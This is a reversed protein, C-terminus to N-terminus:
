REKPQNTGIWYLGVNLKLPALPDSYTKDKCLEILGSKLHPDDIDQDKLLDKGKERVWKDVPFMLQYEFTDFNAKYESNILVIDRIIFTALKDGIQKISDLKYYAKYLGNKEKTIITKFYEYLNNTNTDRMFQLISNVMDIDKPNTLVSKLKDKITGEDDELLKPVAQEDTELGLLKITSKRYKESLDDSRGRFFAHGFIFKLGNNPMGLDKDIWNSKEIIERKYDEYKEIYKQLEKDVDINYDVKTKELDTLTNGERRGM